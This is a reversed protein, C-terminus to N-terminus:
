CGRRCYVTHLHPHLEPNHHKRYETPVSHFCRYEASNRLINTYRRFKTLVRIPIWCRVFNNNLVGPVRHHLPQDLALQTRRGVVLAVAAHRGAGELGGLRVHDAGLV